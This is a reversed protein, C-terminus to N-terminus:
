KIVGEKVYHFCVRLIYLAISKAVQYDSNTLEKIDESYEKKLFDDIDVSRKPINRNYRLVSFNESYFADYVTLAEWNLGYYGFNVGQSGIAKFLIQLEPGKGVLVTRYLMNKNMDM